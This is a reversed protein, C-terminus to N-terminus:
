AFAVVVLAHNRDGKAGRVRGIEGRTYLGAVPPAAGPGFAELTAAAERELAPGLVHKRGGCDFVLAARPRAGNLPACAAEVADATSAVIAEPAQATFHVAANEPISTACLLGGGAERGLVHRLRVDGSLEPQALPHGAAVDAFEGPSLRAAALGLKELYVEAAPRGDLELVVSGSARTVISPVACPRCGHAMGVGIPEPSGIAVAVVAREYARGLAIQAPPDGAAAGGAFPITGGTVAYAGAVTEAQDGSRTDLFLLLVTHATPDGVAALAEAAAARGAARPDRDANEAVAVGAMLPAALALAVCGGQVLGPPGVCADSTLGVVPVDGAAAQAQAAARAAGLDPSAFVVVLSGPADGLGRLASLVAVRAADPGAAAGAAATPAVQTRATM